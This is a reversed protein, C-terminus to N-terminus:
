KSPADALAAILKLSADDLGNWVAMRVDAHIDGVVIAGPLLGIPFFLM